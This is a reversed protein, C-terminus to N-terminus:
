PAQAWEARTIVFKEVPLGGYYENSHGLRSFGLRLAVRQSAVNEPETVAYIESVDFNEFAYDMAARGAETAYGNGWYRQALHWGIELDTTNVARDRGPLWKILVAGVLADDSRRFLPFGGMGAGWTDYAAIIRAMATAAESASTWTQGGIYRTVVPDSYLVM